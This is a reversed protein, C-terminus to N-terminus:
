IIYKLLILLGAIFILRIIFLSTKKLKQKKIAQSINVVHKKARSSSSFTILQKNDARLEMEGNDRYEFLKENRANTFDIITGKRKKM